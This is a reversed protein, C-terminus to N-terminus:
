PQYLNVRYSAPETTFHTAGSVLLIARQGAAVRLSIRGQNDIEPIIVRTEDSDFLLLRVVWRQPLIGSTRVFGIADWGGDDTEAGDAFGIEPVRIDDILMGPGNIAADSIVWFRLLVDQGVFPTLDIREDIWRGRVGGLAVDPAGSVGTFGYGMNHGQPDDARTTIGPLTQWHTGGDTSVTVFAYDYDRELEHWLRFTLTARSVSRLDLHRTLTSVSEDGRNSWWAFRGEAPLAGVLQVTDAGDFDIALPGDLPGMYDVGFQRVTASTTGPELRMTAARTPIGRYAYRGDDVYPDNLANAVAWDAFLDAFTVIDPRRYAALNALVHVNNGADADIWDAPRSDGAYQEYLYRMFLQAAGYHRTVGSGPAWTTLQTDPNRLYALAAGNDGLGNLDEALMSLGENFWTPSRPQRHWHIMHQFEHALTANYTESGPPFAVADIVFMERENSFRNVARTVGDASSFYGGAGRIRTNLITLRADGDVGPIREEGFLLRNRPYIREEFVQASQEILHQPVDLTTDIYMLVVPGAYRLQATVTYNVNNSVDAVWFTETAGIRVDLPMTRAVHPIDGGHFAASIARQDRPAPVAAAITTLEDIPATVPVISATPRIPAVPVSSPTVSPAVTPSAIVPLHSPPLSPVAGACASLLAIVLLALAGPLTPLPRAPFRNM